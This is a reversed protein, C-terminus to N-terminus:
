GILGELFEMVQDFLEPNGIDEGDKNRLTFDIVSGSEDIWEKYIVVGTEDKFTYTHEVVESTTEHKLLELKSM